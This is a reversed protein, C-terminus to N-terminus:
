LKSITGAFLNIGSVNDRIFFLFPRNVRYTPIPPPQRVSTLRVGIVTVAAAKTGEEDVDVVAKHLALGVFLGRRGSVGSLDATMPNFVHQVGMKSLIPILNYETEVKFKPLYVFAEHKYSQKVNKILNEIDESSSSSVVSELGNNENPLIIIMSANGVYPLEVVTVDKASDAYARLQTKQHMFDIQNEEVGYFAEKKTDKVEFKSEWAGKFYIANILVFKTMANLPDDLAKKIMGRTQESVWANIDNTAKAGDRAFNVSDVSAKYKNEIINRFQELVPMDDSVVFKNAMNLEYTSNSQERPKLANMLSGFHEHVDSLQDLKFSQKLQDATHGNAGAILMGFATSLSASSYFVNGTSSSVQKLFDIGFDNISRGLETSAMASSVALFLICSARLLKM